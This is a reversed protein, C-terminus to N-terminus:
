RNLVDNRHSVSGVIKLVEDILEQTVNIEILTTVLNETVADFHIDTLAM